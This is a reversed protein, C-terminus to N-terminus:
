FTFKESEVEVYESNLRVVKSSEIKEDISKLIPLLLNHYIDALTEKDLKKYFKFGVVYADDANDYDLDFITEITEYNYTKFDDEQFNIVNWINDYSANAGVINKVAEPRALITFMQEAVPYTLNIFSFTYSHKQSVTKKM